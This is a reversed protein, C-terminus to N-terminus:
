GGRELERMLAAKAIEFEDPQLLGRDRMDGLRELRDLLASATEPNAQVSKAPDKRPAGARLNRSAQLAAPGSSALAWVGFLVPAFAMVEFIVGPILFGLEVGTGEPPNLLGYDIFNYGLTAFLATWGLLPVSGLPGGVRSGYVLGFGGFGFLGFMGLFMAIPVGDPCPQVPVYPGGEGCAGGIDMVARM